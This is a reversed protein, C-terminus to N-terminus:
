QILSAEICMFMPIEKRATDEAKARPGAQSKKHSSWEEIRTLAFGHKSLLKMFVQLPRHYSITYKKNTRSGPNMDIKITSESQYQYVVRGQRDEISPQTTNKGAQEYYWDSSQPIRFSPHNLVLILRGYKFGPSKNFDTKNKIAFGVKDQSKPKRLVRAAEKFMQDLEKINQAALVCIGAEITSTQIMSLDDAGSVFFKSRKGLGKIKLRDEAKAILEPAIDLAIVEAGRTVIEETFFGQGCAIDVIKDGQKPDLIRMLNPLIVAKQYSDENGLYEDYWDAVKGWSTNHKM